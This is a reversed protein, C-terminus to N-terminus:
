RCLSPPVHLPALEDCKKAARGTPGENGVCLRDLPPPANTHKHAHGIPVWFPPHADCCKLLYQSLQSPGFTAVDLDVDAPCRAFNFARALVDPLERRQRRIDDDGIPARYDPGQQSRCPRYRDHKYDHGIGDTGTEDIAQRPRSAVGGAKDLEFIAHAALPQLQEFL